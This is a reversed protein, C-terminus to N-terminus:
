CVPQDFLYINHLQRTFEIAAWREIANEDGSVLLGVSYTLM